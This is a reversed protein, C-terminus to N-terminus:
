VPIRNKRVTCASLAKSRKANYIDTLENQRMADGISCAILRATGFILADTKAASLNIETSLSSIYCEELELMVQNILFLANRDFAEADALNNDHVDRGAMLNATDYVARATM